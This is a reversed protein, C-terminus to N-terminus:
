KHGTRGKILQFGNSGAEWSSKDGVDGIKGNEPANREAYLSM